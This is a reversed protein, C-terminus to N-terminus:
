PAGDQPSCAAAVDTYWVVGAASDVDPAPWTCAPDDGGAARYRADGTATTLAAGSAGTAAADVDVNAAAADAADFYFVTQCGDGQCAVTVDPVPEDDRAFRLLVAGRDAFTDFGFPRGASATWSEDTSARVSAAVARSRREDVAIAFSTAAPVLADGDVIVALKGSPPPAANVVRFRGCDDVDIADAALPAGGPEAAFAAADVATVSVACPGEDTPNDPDCVSGLGDGVLPAHTSGDVLRGCVTVLGPSPAPCAIPIGCPFSCEPSDDCMCTVTGDNAIVPVACSGCTVPLADPVCAASELDLHTGPGCSSDDVSIGPVCQGGSERTGFGCVVSDCAVAGVAIAASSALLASRSVPM